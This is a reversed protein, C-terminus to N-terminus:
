LEINVVTGEGLTSNIDIKGNLANVCQKVITLGLGFGKITDVNKGRHFPEFIRKLDDDPIGIGKDMITLLCKTNKLHMAISIDTNPYSYNMSNNVLNMLIKKFLTDDTRITDPLNAYDINIINNNPNFNELELLIENIMPRVPVDSIVIDHTDSELSGIALVQQLLSTMSDVAHQIKNLHKEEKEHVTNQLIHKLLYSSTSIITLPTRYEHSIMSIFRTKLENFEKEREYSKTIEDKAANIKEETQKRVSIESELESLATRLQITREEVREELKRNMQKIMEEAKKRETIDRVISMLSGDPFLKSSIEVNITTGDKTRLKREAIIDDYATLNNFYDILEMPNNLVIVESINLRLLEDKTYGLLECGKDNVDTYYGKSDVIFLGDSAYKFLASYKEVSDKLAKESEILKSETIYQDNVSNIVRPLLDLFHVDKILYDSAGLKMMDVAIKEGGHGTMVIFPFELGYQQIKKIFEMATMDPLNYDILLIAMETNMLYAIAEKFSQFVVAEYGNRSLIKRIITLFDLNDEVIVLPLKETESMLGM